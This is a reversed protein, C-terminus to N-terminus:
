FIFELETKFSSQLSGARCSCVVVLWV